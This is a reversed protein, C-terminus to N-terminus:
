LPRYALFFLLEKLIFIYFYIANLLCPNNSIELNSAMTTSMTLELGLLTVYHSVKDFFVFMFCILVFCFCLILCNKFHNLFFSYRPIASLISNLPKLFILFIQHQFLLKFVGFDEM